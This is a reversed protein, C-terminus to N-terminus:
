RSHPQIRRRKRAKGRGHAARREIRRLKWAADHMQADASEMAGMLGHEGFVRDGGLAAVPADDAGRQLPGIHGIRQRRLVSKVRHFRQPVLRVVAHHADKAVGQERRAVAVPKQAANAAGAVCATM